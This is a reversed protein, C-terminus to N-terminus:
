KFFPMNGCNGPCREAHRTVNTEAVGCAIVVDTLRHFAYGISKGFQLLSYIFCFPEVVYMCRNNTAIIAEMNAAHAEIPRGVPPSYSMSGGFNTVLLGKGRDVPWLSLRMVM